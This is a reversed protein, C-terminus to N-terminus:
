CGVDPVRPRQAIVALEALSARSKSERQTASAVAAVRKMGIVAAHAVQLRRWETNNSTGADALKDDAPTRSSGKHSLPTQLSPTSAPALSPATDGSLRHAALAPAVLSTPRRDRSPTSQVLSLEVGTDLNRSSAGRCRDTPVDASPFASPHPMETISVLSSARRNALPTHLPSSSGQAAPPATRTEERDAPSSHGSKFSSAILDPTELMRTSGGTRVRISDMSRLAPVSKSVAVRDGWYLTMTGKGKVETPARCTLSVGLRQALSTDVEGIVDSPGDTCDSPLTAGASKLPLAPMVVTTEKRTRTSAGGSPQAFCLAATTQSMSIRGPAGYKKM